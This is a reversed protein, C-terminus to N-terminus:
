GAGSLQRLLQAMREAHSAAEREYDAAEALAARTDIRQTRDRETVYRRPQLSFENAEIEALPVVKALAPADSYHAFISAIEDTLGQWKSSTALQDRCQSADIFLIRGARGLKKRDRRCLLLAPELSLGPLMGSPLGIVADIIDDAIMNTRVQADAGGRFLPGHPILTVARGHPKLCAIAHQIFAMDGSTRGPRGYVFRRYPDSEAFQVDGFRQGYPPDCVVVDFTEPDHSKVLQPRGWPDAETVHRVFEPHRLVDGVYIRVDRAGVLFLRLRALGAVGAQIEQGSLTPSHRPKSVRPVTAALITGIGACPDHVSEGANPAALRVMLKALPRPTAFQFGDAGGVAVSECAQDFWDGFCLPDAKVSRGLTDLSSVWRDLLSEASRLAPLLQQTFVGQLEPLRKEVERTLEQLKENASGLNGSSRSQRTGLERWLSELTENGTSLFRLAFLYLLSRTTAGSLGISRAYDTNAEWLADLQLSVDTM